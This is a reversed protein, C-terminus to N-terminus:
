RHMLSLSIMFIEVTLEAEFQDQLALMLVAIIM